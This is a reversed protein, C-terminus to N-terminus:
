FFFVLQPVNDFSQQVRHFLLSSADNLPSVLKIKFEWQGDSCKSELLDECHM